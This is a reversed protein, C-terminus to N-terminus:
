SGERNTAARLGLYTGSTGSSWVRRIGCYLYGNAVMPVSQTTGAYTTVKATGATMCYLGAFPGLVDNGLANGADSPTITLLDDYQLLTAASM